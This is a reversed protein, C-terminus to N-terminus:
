NKKFLPLGKKNEVPVQQSAKTQYQQVIYVHPCALKWSIEFLIGPLSSHLVVSVPKSFALYSYLFLSLTDSL